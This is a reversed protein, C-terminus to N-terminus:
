NVRCWCRKKQAAATHATTLVVSSQWSHWKCARHVGEAKVLSPLYQSTSKFETLYDKQRGKIWWVTLGDQLVHHSDTVTSIGLRRGRANSYLTSLRNSPYQKIQSCKKVILSVICPRSTIGTNIYISYFCVSVDVAANLATYKPYLVHNGESLADQLTSIRYCQGGTNILKLHNPHHACLLLQSSILLCPGQHLLHHCPPSRGTLELTGCHRSQSCVTSSPTAQCLLTM